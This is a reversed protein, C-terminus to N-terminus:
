NNNINSVISDIRQRTTMPSSSSNSANQARNAAAEAQKAAQQAAATDTSAPQVSNNEANNVVNQATPKATPNNKASNYMGQTVNQMGIASAGAHALGAVTKTTNDTKGEALTSAAHGVAEKGNNLANIIKNSKATVDSVSASKGNGSSTAESLSSDKTKQEGGRTNASQMSGSTQTASSPSSSSKTSESSSISQGTPTKADVNVPNSSTSESNAQTNQNTMSEQAKNSTDVQQSDGDHNTMSAKQDVNESDTNIDGAENKLNDGDQEQQMSADSSMQRDDVDNDESNTEDNMSEDGADTSLDSSNSMDAMQSTSDPKMSESAKPDTDGSPVNTSEPNDTGMSSEDANTAEDANTSEDVTTDDSMSDGDSGGEIASDNPEDNTMTSEDATQQSSAQNEANNQRDDQSSLDSSNEDGSKTSQDNANTQDKKSDSNKQKLGTNINKGNGQTMSDKNTSQKDGDKNNTDSKTDQGNNNNSNNTVLSKGAMSLGEKVGAGQQKFGGALAKGINPSGYGPGRYGGLIRNEMAEAKQATTEPITAVWSGFASIPIKVAPIGFILAICNTFFSAVDNCMRVIGVGVVPIKSAWDKVSDMFNNLQSLGDLKSMAGLIVNFLFTISQILITILLSIGFLGFALAFVGGLLRGVSESSGFLSGAGGRLLGGFAGVLIEIIAKVGYWLAVLNLIADVIGALKFGGHKKQEKITDYNVVHYTDASPAVAPYTPPKMNDIVAIGDNTFDTNLFNYAAVPAFGYGNDRCQFVYEGNNGGSHTYYMSGNKLYGTSKIEKPDLKSNKAMNECLENYNKTYYPTKGDLSLVDTWQTTATNKNDGATTMADLVKQAVSSTVHSAEAQSIKGAALASNVNINQITDPTWIFQGNKVTISTGSPIEFRSNAWLAMGLNQQILNVQMPQKQMDVIDDLIETGKDYIIMSVPIGAGIIAMRLAFKRLYRSMSAENFLLMLASLAFDIILITAIALFSNTMGPVISPGGLFSIADVAFPIKVLNAVLMNDKYKSQSLWSADYFGLVIPAPSFSRLLKTGMGAVQGSARELSNAVEDGSAANPAIMSAKKSMNNWARGFNYYAFGDYQGGNGTGHLYEKMFQMNAKPLTSVNDTGSKSDLGIAGYLAGVNFFGKDLLASINNQMTKMSSTKDSSKKDTSSDEGDSLAKQYGKYFATPMRSPIQLSGYDSNSDSEKNDDSKKDTGNVGKDNGSGIKIEKKKKEKEKKEADKKSKETDKNQIKQIETQNPNGQTGNGTAVSGGSGSTGNGHAVDALVTPTSLITNTFPMSLAALAAFAALKQKFKHRM